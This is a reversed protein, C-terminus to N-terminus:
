RKAQLEKVDTSAEGFGHAEVFDDVALRSFDHVVRRHEFEVLGSDIGLQHVVVHAERSKPHLEDRIPFGIHGRVETGAIKPRHASIRPLVSQRRSMSLARYGRLAMSLSPTAGRVLM